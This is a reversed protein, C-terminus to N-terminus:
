AFPQDQAVRSLLAKFSPNDVVAAAEDLSFWRRRREAREPWDDLETEVQLLYVDIKCAVAKRSSLLKRHQFTGVPRTQVRGRVGAEEYAERAASGAHSRLRSPWGKPPLWRSGRRSTVLLVEVKGTATRRWPLAGCQRVERIPLLTLVKDRFWGV